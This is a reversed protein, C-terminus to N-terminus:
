PVQGLAEEIMARREAPQTWRWQHEEDLTLLPDFYLFKKGPKV